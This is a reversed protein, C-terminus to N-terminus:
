GHAVMEPEFINAAFILLFIIGVVSALRAKAIEGFLLGVYQLLSNQLKAIKQQEEKLQNARKEASPWWTPM